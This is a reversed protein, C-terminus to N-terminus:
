KEDGGIMVEHLNLSLTAWSPVHGNKRQWFLLLSRFMDWANRLEEEELM